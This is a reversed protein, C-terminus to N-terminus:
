REIVTMEIMALSPLFMTFDTNEAIAIVSINRGDIHVFRKANAIRILFRNYSPVLIMTLGRRPMFDIPTQRRLYVTKYRPYVLSLQSFKALRILDYSNVTSFCGSSGVLHKCLVAKSKGLPRWYIGSNQNDDDSISVKSDNTEM